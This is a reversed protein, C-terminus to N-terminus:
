CKPSSAYEAIFPLYCALWREAIDEAWPIRELNVLGVVEVVM